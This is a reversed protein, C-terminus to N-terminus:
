LGVFINMQIYWDLHQESIDALVALNEACQVPIAVAWHVLIALLFNMSSPLEISAVIPIM